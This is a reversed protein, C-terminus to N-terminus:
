EFVITEEQNIEDINFTQTFTNISNSVTISISTGTVAFVGVSGVDEADFNLIGNEEEYCLSSIEVNDMFDKECVGVIFQYEVSYELGTNNVIKVKMNSIPAYLLPPFEIIEGSPYTNYDFSYNTFYNNASLTEGDFEILINGDNELGVMLRTNYIDGQGEFFGNEDTNFEAIPHNFGSKLIITKGSVPNGNLDILMGRYTNNTGVITPDDDTFCSTLNLSLLIMLLYNIVKRKFSCMKNKKM